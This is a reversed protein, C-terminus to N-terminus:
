YARESRNRNGVSCTAAIPRDKPLSNVKERLDAFFISEANEIYGADIWESPERIWSCYKM